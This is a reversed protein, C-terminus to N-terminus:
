LQRSVITRMACQVEQLCHAGVYAACRRSRVAPRLINTLAWVEGHTNDLPYMEHLIPYLPSQEMDPTWQFPTEQAAEAHLM